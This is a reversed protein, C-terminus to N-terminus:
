NFPPSFIFFNKPIDIKDTKTRDNKATGANTEALHGSVGQGGPDPCSQLRAPSHTAAPDSDGILFTVSISAKTLATARQIAMTTETIATM